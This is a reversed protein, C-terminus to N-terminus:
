TILEIYYFSENERDREREREREREKFLMFYIFCLTYEFILKNFLVIQLILWIDAMRFRTKLCTSLSPGSLLSHRHVAQDPDESDALLNM